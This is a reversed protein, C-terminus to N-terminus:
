SRINATTDRIHQELTDISHTIASQAAEIRDTGISKSLDSYSESNMALGAFSAGSSSDSRLTAKLQQEHQKLNSFLQTQVSGAAVSSGMNKISM